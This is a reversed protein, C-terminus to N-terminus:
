MNDKKKDVIEEYENYSNREQIIRNTKFGSQM